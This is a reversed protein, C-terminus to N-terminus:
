ATRERLYLLFAKLEEEVIEEARGVQSSRLDRNQAAMRELDDMDYVYVNELENASPEVNRPLTLDVLFVPRYRRAKVARAMMERTIVAQSAGTSCIAVDVRELLAPLEALSVPVGGIEAAIQEAAQPTRNAVLLERAGASRTPISVASSTLNRSPASCAGCITAREAPSPWPSSRSGTALPSWCPKGCARRPGSRGCGRASRTRRSPSASACRSRRRRTPCASAS